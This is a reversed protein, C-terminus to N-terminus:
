PSSGVVLLADEIVDETHGGSGEQLYVQVHALHQVRVDDVCDLLAIYHEVQAASYAGDSDGDALFHWFYLYDTYLNALLSDFVCPTIIAFVLDVKASSLILDFFYAIAVSSISYHGNEVRRPRAEVLFHHHRQATASSQVVQDVHGAISSRNLVVEQLQREGHSFLPSCRLEEDFAGLNEVQERLSGVVFREVDELANLSRQM